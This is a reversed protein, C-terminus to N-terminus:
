LLDKIDPTGVRSNSANLKQLFDTKYPAAVCCILELTVIRSDWVYRSNILGDGKNETYTLTKSSEPYKPPYKSTDQRLIIKSKLVAVFDTLVGSLLLSPFYYLSAHSNKKVLGLQSANLGLIKRDIPLLEILELWHTKKQELDCDPAVVIGYTVGGGIEDSIAVIDGNKISGSKAAFYVIKNVLRRKDQLSATSPVGPARQLLDKLENTFDDDELLGRHILNLILDSSWDINVEDGVIKKLIAAIDANPFENLEFLTKELNNRIKGRYASALQLSINDRLMRQIESELAGVSISGKDFASILNKPFGIASLDANQFDALNHTYVFVPCFHSAKLKKLFLKSFIDPDGDPGEFYWDLVVADFSADGNIALDAVSKTGCAVVDAGTQIFKGQLDNLLSQDDEILLIRNM